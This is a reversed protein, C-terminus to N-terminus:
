SCMGTRPVRMLNTFRVDDTNAYFPHDDLLEPSATTPVGWNQLFERAQTLDEPDCTGAPAIIDVNNHNPLLATNM